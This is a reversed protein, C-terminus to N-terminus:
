KLKFKLLKNENICKYSINWIDNKKYKKYEFFIFIKNDKQVLFAESVIQIPNVIKFINKQLRKWVLGDKSFALNINGTIKNKWAGFVMFYYKNIKIISPSYISFQENQLTKTLCRKLKLIKFKNNLILCNIKNQNHSYYFYIYNNIEYVFPTQFLEQKNSLKFKPYITWNKNDKSVFCLIDSGINKQAEIFLYYKNNKSKYLFPSLFSIYKEYKKPSLIPLTEKQWKKLNRSSARNIEGYLINQSTKKRYLISALDPRGKRNCYLLNYSNKSKYVHPCLYKYEKLGQKLLPIVKATSIKIM